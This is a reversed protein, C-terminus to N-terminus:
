AQDLIDYGPQGSYKEADGGFQGYSHIACFILGPNEGRLPGYGLGLGDMRGPPFAHILVDAKRAFRRLLGKGDESAIDMTIHFKNRGEVIYGLGADKIMMGYPTMKRAPDGGPPEVRIVEAGMESLLSSAFLGAFSGQSADLVLVDDLAEPKRSVEDPNTERHAWKAYEPNASLGVIKSDDM